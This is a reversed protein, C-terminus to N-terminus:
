TGDCPGAMAPERAEERQKPPRRRLDQDDGLGGGTLAKWLIGKWKRVQLVYRLVVGYCRVKEDMRLKARRVATLYGWILQLRALSRGRPRAPAVFAQQAEASSLCGAAEPHVRVYFLTEPVEAYRGWLALEGMLVKESGYVPLYLQTNRVIESRMLGYSDLCGGPGLVVAKLRDSARESARTLRLGRENAPLGVYSVDQAGAEDILDGTVDIHSSRTHCWCVDPHRDLVQVCREIYTPACIDDVAAWKFYESQSLEFVRNFNGASGLNKEQRFYRIRPDRTAFERCIDPTEDTSANDSIVLEFDSFTQLLLSDLSERLFAAGNYVPM